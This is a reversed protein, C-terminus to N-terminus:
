FTWCPSHLRPTPWSLMNSLIRLLNLYTRTGRGWGQKSVYEICSQRIHQVLASRLPLRQPMMVIYVKRLYIIWYLWLAPGKLSVPLYTAKEEEKWGNIHALMRTSSPTTPKGCPDAMTAELASCRATSNLNVTVETGLKLAKVWDGTSSDTPSVQHCWPEVLFGALHSHCSPEMGATRLCSKEPLEAKVVQPLPERIFSCLKAELTWVREEMRDQRATWQEVTLRQDQALLELEESFQQSLEVQLERQEEALQELKLSFQNAQERALQEQWQGQEQLTTLLTGIHEEMQRASKTGTAM